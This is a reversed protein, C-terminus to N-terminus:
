GAPYRFKERMLTVTFVFYSVLALLGLTGAAVGGVYKVSLIALTLWFWTLAHLWRLVFHEWRSRIKAKPPPPWLVTFVVAVAFCGAALIEVPLGLLTNDM